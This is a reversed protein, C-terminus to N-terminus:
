RQLGQRLAKWHSKGFGGWVGQSFSEILATGGRRADEVLEPKLQHMPYRRTCVDRMESWAVPTPNLKLYSRCRLLEDDSPLDDMRCHRTWVAFTALLALAGGGTIRFIPFRKSVVRAM